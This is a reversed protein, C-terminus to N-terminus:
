PLSAKRSDSSPLLEFCCEASFPGEVEDCSSLERSIIPSFIEVMWVSSAAFLEKLDFSFHQVRSEQKGENVQVQCSRRRASM